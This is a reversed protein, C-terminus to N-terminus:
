PFFLRMNIGLIIIITIMENLFITLSELEFSKEEKFLIFFAIAPIIYRPEILWHFVFSLFSFLYLFYMKKNIFKINLCSLITWGTIIYGIIKNPINILLIHFFQNHLFGGLSIQNYKHDIKLLFFLLNIFLIFLFYKPQRTIFFFIKRINYIHIPLFFIFIMFIFLYINGIHVSVIHYQKDGLAINGSNILFFLVLFIFSFIYLIISKFYDYSIKGRFAYFCFFGIWFINDQRILVSILALIGSFAYKKNLLLLFSALVLVLSFIDTYVLFFFPYILPFLVYQLTKIYVFKNNLKKAIFFFIIISFFSFIATILRASALSYSGFIKMFFSIIIVYGPLVSSRTIAQLIDEKHIIQIISRYYDSEDVFVNADKIIWYFVSLLFIIELFFIIGIINRKNLIISKRM